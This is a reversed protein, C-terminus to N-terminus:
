WLYGTPLAPDSEITINCLPASFSVAYALPPCPASAMAGSAISLVSVFLCCILVKPRRGLM